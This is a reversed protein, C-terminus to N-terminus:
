VKKDGGKSEIIFETCGGGGPPDLSQKHIYSDYVIVRYPLNGRSPVLAIENVGVVSILKHSWLRLIMDPSNVGHIRQYLQSIIGLRSTRISLVCMTKTLILSQILVNIIELYRLESGRSVHYATRFCPAAGWDVDCYNRCRFDKEFRRPLM